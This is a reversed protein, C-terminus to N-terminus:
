PTNFKITQYVCFIIVALILSLVLMSIINILFITILRTKNLGFSKYLFMNRKIDNWIYYLIYITLIVFVIIIVNFYFNNTKILSEFNINSQNIEFGYTENHYTKKLFNIVSENKAWDDIFIIYGYNDDLTNRLEYFKEKSVYIIPSMKSQYYDKIYLDVSDVSTSYSFTNEDMKKMYIPLIVENSKLNEDIIAYYLGNFLSESQKKINNIKSFDYRDQTKMYIFSESFNNKILLYYNHKSNILYMLGFLLLTFLAIFIKTSKKRYFSKVFLM